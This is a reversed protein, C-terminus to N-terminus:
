FPPKELLAGGNHVRCLNMEIVFWLEPACPCYSATQTSKVGRRRQYGHVLSEM